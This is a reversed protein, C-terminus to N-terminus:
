SSADTSFYSFNITHCMSCARKLTSSSLSFGVEGVHWVYMQAMHDPKGLLQAIASQKPELLELIFLLHDQVNLSDVVRESSLSWVGWPRQHTGTGNVFFDGKGWAQTPELALLNSIEEPILNDSRISFTVSAHM